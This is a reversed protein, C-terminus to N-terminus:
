CCISLIWHFFKNVRWRHDEIPKTTPALRLSWPVARNGRCILGSFRLYCHAARLRRTCKFATGVLVWPSRHNSVLSTEQNWPIARRLETGQLHSDRPRLHALSQGVRNSITHTL